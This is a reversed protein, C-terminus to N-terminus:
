NQWVMKRSAIEWRQAMELREWRGRGFERQRIGEEM